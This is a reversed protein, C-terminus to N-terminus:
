RAIEDTIVALRGCSVALREQDAESLPTGDLLQRSCVLLFTAEFDLAILAERATLPRERKRMHEARSSQIRDIALEARFAPETEALETGVRPEYDDLNVFTGTM